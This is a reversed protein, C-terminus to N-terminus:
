GVLGQGLLEAFARCVDVTTLVGVVHGNQVIVASGYRERAMTAVVKDLPEDPGVTYLQEPMAGFVSVREPDVISFSEAFRIDRDTVIGVLKGGAIVPLHRIACDAMMKSAQALTTTHEVTLPTKTMFASVSPIAKSM